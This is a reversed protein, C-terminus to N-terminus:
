QHSFALRTQRIRRSGPNTERCDILGGYSSPKPMQRFVGVEWLPSLGERSSPRVRVPRADVSLKSHCTHSPLSNCRHRSIAQARNEANRRGAFEQGIRNRVPKVAGVTPLSTTTPRPGEKAIHGASAMIKVPRAPHRRSQSTGSSCQPTSLNPAPDTNGQRKDGLTITNWSQRRVRMAAADTTPIAAILGMRYQSESNMRTGSVIAPSVFCEASQLSMPEGKRLGLGFKTIKRRQQTLITLKSTTGLGVFHVLDTHPFGSRDLGKTAHLSIRARDRQTKTDWISTASGHFQVVGELNHAKRAETVSARLFIGRGKCLGLRPHCLPLRRCQAQAWLTLDSAVMKASCRM